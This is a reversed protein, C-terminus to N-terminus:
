GGPNDFVEPGVPRFIECLYAATGVAGPADPDFPEGTEEASEAFDRLAMWPETWSGVFQYMEMPAASQGQGPVVFRLLGGEYGIEESPLLASALASNLLIPIADGNQEV